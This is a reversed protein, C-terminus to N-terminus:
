CVRTLTERIRAALANLEDDGIDLVLGTDLAALQQQDFPVGPPLPGSALATRLHLV